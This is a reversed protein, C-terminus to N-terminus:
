ALGLEYLELAPDKLQWLSVRDDKLPLAVVILNHNLREFILRGPRYRYLEVIYRINADRRQVPFGIRRSLTNSWTTSSEHDVTELQAHRKQRGLDCSPLRGNKACM